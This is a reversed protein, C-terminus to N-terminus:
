YWFLILFLGFAVYSVQQILSLVAICSLVVYGCFLIFYSKEPPETALIAIGNYPAQTQDRTLFGSGM